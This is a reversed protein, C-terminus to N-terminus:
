WKKKGNVVWAVMTTQMWFQLGTRSGGDESADGSGSEKWEGYPDIKFLTEKEINNFINKKGDNDFDAIITRIKSPSKMLDPTVDIFKDGEWSWM